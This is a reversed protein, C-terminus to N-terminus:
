CLPLCVFFVATWFHWTQSETVVALGLPSAKKPCSVKCVESISDPTKEDALEPNKADLHTSCNVCNRKESSCLSFFAESNHKETQEPSRPFCPSCTPLAAPVFADRFGALWEALSRSPVRWSDSEWLYCMVNKPSPKQNTPQEKKEQWLCKHSKQCQSWETLGLFWCARDVPGCSMVKWPLATVGSSGLEAICFDTCHAHPPCLQARSGGHCKIEQTQTAGWLFFSNCGLLM